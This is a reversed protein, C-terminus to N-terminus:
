AGGPRAELCGAAAADQLISTLTTGASLVVLVQYRARTISVYLERVTTQEVAAALADNGVVRPPVVGQELGVLIVADFEQGGVYAPRTLAVLPRGQELKEGRTLLEHLPLDTARLAGALADYHAESHCIVAIERLKRRRLERIKRVIFREVGPSEPGAIEVRPPVALPHDDPEMHEAIGTFNPFDVGFLDTSRQIVYFALRVIAQTSRHISDLSENFIDPIGLTALGATSRAFVDQAEDLALVVAVHTRLGNTLLPILRRENENFLQTEDVFVYDYGASKRKLAWIPTRLRGLLSLAIDDTDLVGYQEFVVQHYREFINFVLAREHQELLGHLRSLRREAQVYRKQDKELGHGKIATSIESVILMALVPVLELSGRVVGFLESEDVERAGSELLAKLAEVVVDRQFEKAGRADGDIVADEELGLENRAYDTLTTINIWQKSDRRNDSLGLMAFRQRVTDAMAANHVLYLVRIQSDRDRAASVRRMALLQMLLTKGSGGPGIIRLPHREIADSELIRRQVDSLFSDEHIWDSYTLGAARYADRREIAAGDTAVEVHRYEGTDAADDRWLFPTLFYRLDALLDAGGVPKKRRADILRNACAALPELKRGANATATSLELFNFAPGLCVVSHLTSSPTAVQREFYGISFKRASSGRGALCTHAGNPYARHIFAGEIFLSQLRQNIVYLCRELVERCMEPRSLIGLEGSLKVFGWSEEDTGTLYDVNWLAVLRTADASMRFSGEALEYDLLPDLTEPDSMLVRTLADLVGPKSVVWEATGQTIALYNM